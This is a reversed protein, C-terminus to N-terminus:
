YLHSYFSIFYFHIKLLFFTVEYYLLPSINAHVFMCISWQSKARIFHCIQFQQYPTNFEPSILIDSLSVHKQIMIMLKNSGPERNMERSIVRIMWNNTHLLLEKKREPM